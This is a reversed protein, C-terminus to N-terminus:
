KQETSTATDASSSAAQREIESFVGQRDKIQQKLSEKLDQLASAGLAASEKGGAVGARINYKISSVWIAAIVITTLGVCLWMWVKKNRM